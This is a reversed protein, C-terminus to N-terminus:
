IRAGMIYVMMPKALGLFGWLMLFSWWVYNLYFHFIISGFHIQAAIWVRLREQHQLFWSQSGSL